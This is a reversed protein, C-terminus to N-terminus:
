IMCGSCDAFIYMFLTCSCYYCARVIIFFFLPKLCLLMIMSMRAVSLLLQSVTECLPYVSSAVTRFLYMKLNCCACAAICQVYSSHKKSLLIWYPQGRSTYVSFQSLTTWVVPQVFRPEFSASALSKERRWFPCVPGLAWGSETWHTGPYSTSWKSSALSKFCTSSYEVGEICRWAVSLPLKLRRICIIIFSTSWVCLLM